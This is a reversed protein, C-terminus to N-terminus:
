LLFYLYKFIIWKKLIASESQSELFTSKKTTLCEYSFAPPLNQPTIQFAYKRVKSFNLKLFLFSQAVMLLLYTVPSQSPISKTILVIKGINTLFAARNPSTCCNLWLLRFFRKRLPLYDGACRRLIIPVFNAIGNACDGSYGSYFSSAKM